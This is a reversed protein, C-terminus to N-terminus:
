FLDHKVEQTKKLKNENLHLKNDTTWDIIDTLCDQVSSITRDVDTPQSSRHRTDPILLLGSIISVTVKYENDSFTTSDFVTFHDKTSPLAGDGHYRYASQLTYM